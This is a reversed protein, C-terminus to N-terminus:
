ANPGYARRRRARLSAFAPWALLAALAALSLLSVIAGARLLTTQAQRITVTVPGTKSTGPIRTAVVVGSTSFGIPEIGTIRV